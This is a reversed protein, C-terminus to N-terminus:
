EWKPLPTTRPLVLTLVLLLLLLLVVAVQEHVFKKADSYNEEADTYTDMYTATSTCSGGAGTRVEQRRLLERPEAGGVHSRLVHGDGGSDLGGRHLAAEPQRVVGAFHSTGIILMRTLMLIRIPTLLLILLGAVISRLKM